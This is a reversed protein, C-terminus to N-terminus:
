RELAAGDQRLAGPPTRLIGQAQAGYRLHVARHPILEVMRALRRISFKGGDGVIGDHEARGCAGRASDSACATPAAIPKLASESPMAIASSAAIDSRRMSRSTFGSTLANGANRAESLPTPEPNM